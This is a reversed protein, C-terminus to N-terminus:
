RYSKEKFPLTNDGCKVQKYINSWFKSDAAQKLDELLKNFGNIKANIQKHLETADTPLNYKKMDIGVEKAAELVWYLVYGL